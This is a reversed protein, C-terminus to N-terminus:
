IPWSLQEYVRHWLLEVEHSDVLPSYGLKLYIKIAALRWHETFLHIHQYGVDIFRVTVAAVVALGLGRGAHAPDAAVWGVEGCFPFKWTHDHTAMATAVIEGSVEHTIMFWGQPLIRYLWPKLIQEDWGSWGALKMLTFFRNEDGPQYTRLIYGAPIAIQPKIQAMELSWIM